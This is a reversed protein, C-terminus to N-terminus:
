VSVEYTRAGNGTASTTRSETGACVQEFSRSWCRKRMYVGFPSKSWQRNGFDNSYQWGDNDTKPSWLPQWAELPRWGEPSDLPPTDCGACEEWSFSETCLAHPELCENVWRCSKNGDQQMSPPAWARNMLSPRRQLEWVEETRINTPQKGPEPADPESALVQLQSVMTEATSRLTTVIGAYIGPRMIHCAQMFIVRSSIRVDVGPMGDSLALELKEQVAFREGFPVDHSIKSSVLTLSKITGDSLASTTLCCVATVRSTKPFMPAPPLVTQMTLERVQVNSSESAVVEEGLTVDGEIWPLATVDFCGLKGLYRVFFSDVDWETAALSPGLKALTSHRVRGELV